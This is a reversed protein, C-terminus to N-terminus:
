KLKKRELFLEEKIFLEEERINIVVRKKSEGCIRSISLKILRASQAIFIM